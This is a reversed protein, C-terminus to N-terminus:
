LLGRARLNRRATAATGRPINLFKAVQSQTLGDKFLPLYDKEYSYYGRPIHAGREVRRRVVERFAEDLAADLSEDTLTDATVFDRM